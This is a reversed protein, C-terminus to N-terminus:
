DEPNELDIIELEDDSRNFEVDVVAKRIDALAFSRAPDIKEKMGKKPAEHHLEISVEDQAVEVIRGRLKSGDTLSFKVLRSQARVWHRAETLPRSLGPSSVELEYPAANAYVADADLVKSITETVEGLQDLNVSATGTPLDVTIQLIQQKGAPRLTIDELVLGHSEVDKHLVTMLRKAEQETDAPKGTM